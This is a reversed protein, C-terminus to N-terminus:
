NDRKRRSNKKDTEEELQTFKISFENSRVQFYAVDLAAFSNGSWDIEKQCYGGM